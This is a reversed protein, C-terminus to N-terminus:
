IRLFNLIIRLGVSGSKEPHFQCGFVSGRQVAASILRGNYRCDALRLRDEAPVPTFSHVFYVTAGPEIGALITHDWGSRGVPYELKNWGIHPIKHPLGEATTNPIGAVAGPILGLGAHKGFEESADLLMQMGLCIGLFPRDTATHRLIADVLGRERLAVMGNEFAGVGPLVLRDARAVEAPDSSISVEAGCHELAGRVSFVNGIGYDIVTVKTTM